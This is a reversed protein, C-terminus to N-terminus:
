KKKYYINVAHAHDIEHQFIHAKLGEIWETRSRLGWWAKTQYKVRIRYFRETNRGTRSPFSMCADPVFIKNSVEGWESTIKSSVKGQNDKCVERKPVRAKVKEPAELIKANFIAQAPFYFNKNNRKKDNKLRLKNVMEEHVVFFAHPEDCVQNHAIAYATVAPAPFHGNNDNLWKIMPEVINKVSRYSKVRKAIAYIGKDSEPDHKTAIIFDNNEIPSECM